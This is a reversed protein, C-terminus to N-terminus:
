ETEALEERNFRYWNVNRTLFMVTGTILFLGISGVLLSYQELNLLIYIFGLAAFLVVTFISTQAWSKVIAKFYFTNIAIIGLASIIYAIGFLMHESLAILLTYFVVISIGVITYQAPHIRLKKLLEFFFFVTFILSLIMFAYKLARTSKHYSDVGDVLQFGFASGYTKPTYGNWIQSYNRNIDHVKWEATFGDDKVERNGPLFNGNFGPHPWNGKAVVQTTKGLPIFKLSDSGNIKLDLKFNQLSRGVKFHFGSGFDPGFSLGPQIPYKQGDILIEVQNKIGRLDSLGVTIISEEWLIDSSDVTFIEDTIQFEGSLYVDSEYVISNYIGRSRKLANLDTSIDLFEPLIHLVRKEYEEDKTGQNILARYPVSLIPGQIVQAYGWKDSIENQVQSQLASRENIVSKVSDIPILLLLVIVLIGIIKLTVSNKIKNLFNM